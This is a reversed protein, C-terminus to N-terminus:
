FNYGETNNDIEFEIKGDDEDDIEEGVKIMKWQFYKLDESNTKKM